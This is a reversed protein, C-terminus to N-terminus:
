KVPERNTPIPRTIASINSMRFQICKSLYSAVTRISINSALIEIYSQMYQGSSSPLVSMKFVLNKPNSQHQIQSNAIFLHHYILLEFHVIYQSSSIANSSQLDYPISTECQSIHRRSNNIVRQFSSSQDKIISLLLLGTVHLTVFM